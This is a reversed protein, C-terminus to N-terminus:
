EGLPSSFLEELGKRSVCFGSLYRIGRSPVFVDLVLEIYTVGNHESVKNGSLPRFGM